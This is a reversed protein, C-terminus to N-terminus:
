RADDESTAGEGGAGEGGAGEGGAGEGAAGKRAEDLLALLAEELSGRGAGAARQRLAAPTGEAILRGGYMVAVRDALAELEGLAHSSLLVARTRAAERLTERLGRMALPDLGSGPEDLVLLPPDALLADALGVRQRFGKSLTGLLQRRVAGLEAREIAQQAAREVAARRGRWSSGGALKVGARLRLYREVTLEAPGAAVEPLYGCLAQAAARERLLDRGGIAARGADADLYGVAIRLLTTKGAGNPGVLGVVEGREVALSVGRLAPRSGFRKEVQSLELM